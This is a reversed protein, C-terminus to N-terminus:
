RALSLASSSVIPLESIHRAPRATRLRRGSFLTFFYDKQRCAAAKLCLDAANRVAEPDRVVRNENCPNQALGLARCRSADM